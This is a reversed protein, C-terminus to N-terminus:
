PANALADLGRRIVHYITGQVEQIRPIYDSRVVIIHDALGDRAIQGGDYGLLAVTLMGRKHAEDLALLVNKSGGSTSLAVAVDHPKAQAILQRLFIVETGVDNAIATICAPEMALSIAAIPRSGEGPLVCDLAWDNADTASGGNGFLLLKGGADLESRMAITAKVIAGLEENAVRSRLHAADAAKATISAATGTLAEDLSQIDTGLFPYLFDSASPQEGFTRHELFVHVSEYLAHTLIELIEQHIHPDPDPSAVAYTGSSGPLAITMAGFARADALAAAIHPDGQPPGFGMVMDDPGLIAPIWDRYAVSLDLAPLARKGVLVPHVFEVSVHQADTLYAGTGCTILRGGRLFRQAMEQAALAINLGEREFFGAAAKDRLAFADRMWNKLDPAANALM